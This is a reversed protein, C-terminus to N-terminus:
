YMKTKHLQQSILQRTHTEVQFVSQTVQGRELRGPALSPGREQRVPAAPRISSGDRAQPRLPRYSPQCFDIAQLLPSIIIHGTYFQCDQEFVNKNQKTALSLM